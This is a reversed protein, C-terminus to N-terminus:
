NGSKASIGRRKRWSAVLWSFTYYIDTCAVIRDYTNAQPKAAEGSGLHYGALDWRHGHNNRSQGRVFRQVFAKGGQLALCETVKFHDHFHDHHVVASPTLRFRSLADADDRVIAVDAESRSHVLGETLRLRWEERDQIIVSDRLWSPEIGQEGRNLMPRVYAHAGRLDPERARAQQIGRAHVSAALLAAMAFSGCRVRAGFLREQGAAGRSQIAAFHEIFNAEEIFAEEQIAFVGVKPKARAPGGPFAKVNGIGDNFM